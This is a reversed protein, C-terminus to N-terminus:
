KDLNRILRNIEELEKPDIEDDKNKINSKHYKEDQKLIYDPIKEKRENRYTKVKANNPTGKNSNPKTWDKYLQHEKKAVELAESVTNIKLRKWHGAIKEILKKPLKYDNSLMVYEILVNVIEAPLKYEYLLSDVIKVDSDPIKGKGQYQQILELPSYSELVLKHREAKDMIPSSKEIIKTSVEEKRVVRVEKSSYQYKELARNRLQQEDIKGRENYVFHDNLLNVMDMDSFQYIFALENLLYKTKDNLVKDLHHLNSVMGKILDFDLYEKKIKINDENEILYDCPQFIEDVESGAGLQLESTLLFNFVEDFSKTIDKEMIYKEKDWEDKKLLREKLHLYENKGLQNLLLMSLVDSQFFYKPSSACLLTYEYIYKDSELHKYRKSKILGVAELTRKAKIITPFSLKMEAILQRHLYLESYSKESISIKNHMTIYLNTAEIGIIPQYLEILFPIYYLGIPSHAVVIYKDPLTVENFVNSM